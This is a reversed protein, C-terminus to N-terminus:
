SVSGVSKVCRRKRLSRDEGLSSQAPKRRPRTKVETDLSPEFAGVEPAPASRKRTTSPHAPVNMPSERVLVENRCSRRLNERVESSQDGDIKNRKNSESIGVDSTVVSRRLRVPNRSPVTATSNRLSNAVSEQGRSLRPSIRTPEIRVRELEEAVDSSADSFTSDSSNDESLDAPMLSLSTRSIKQCLDETASSREDGNTARRRRQTRVAPESAASEKKDIGGSSTALVCIPLRPLPDTIKKQTSSRLAAAKRASAPVDFNVVSSRRKVSADEIGTARAMADLLSRCKKSADESDAALAMAAITSPSKPKNKSGVPRGRTQRSQDDFIRKGVLRITTIVGSGPFTALLSPSDAGSFSKKRAREVSPKVATTGRSASLCFADRREVSMRSNISPFKTPDTGDDIINWEEKDADLTMRMSRSKIPICYSSSIDVEKGLSEDVLRWKPKGLARPKDAGFTGDQVM